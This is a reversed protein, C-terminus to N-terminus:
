HALRLDPAIGEPKRADRRRAPMALPNGACGADPCSEPGEGDSSAERWAFWRGKDDVALMWGKETVFWHSTANDPLPASDACLAAYSEFGHDIAFQDNNAPATM